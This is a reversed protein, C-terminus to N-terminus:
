QAATAHRRAFSVTYAQSRINVMPDAPEIGAPVANEIFVLARQAADSDPVVKDIEVM